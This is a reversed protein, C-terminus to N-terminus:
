RARFWEPLREDKALDLELRAGDATEAGLTFAGLAYCKFKAADDIAWAAQLPPDFTPHLHFIVVGELHRLPSISGLEFELVLYEKDATEEHHLLLLRLGDHEASGGFQNKHPDSSEIDEYQTSLNQGIQRQLESLAAKVMDTLSALPLGTAAALRNLMADDLDTMEGIGFRLLIRAMAAAAGSTRVLAQELIDERSTLGASAGLDALSEAFREVLGRLQERDDLSRPLQRRDDTARWTLWPTSRGQRILLAQLGPKKEVDFIANDVDQLRGGLAM